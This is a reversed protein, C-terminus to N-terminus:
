NSMLNYEIGNTKPKFLNEMEGRGADFRRMLYCACSNMESESSEEHGM